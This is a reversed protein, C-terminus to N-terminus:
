PEKKMARQAALYGIIFGVVLAAIHSIVLVAPISSQM